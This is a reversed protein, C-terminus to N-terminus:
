NSQNRPLTIDYSNDILDQIYKKFEPDRRTSFYQFVSRIEHGERETIGWQEPYDDFAHNGAADEVKEATITTSAFISAFASNKAKNIASQFLNEWEKSQKFDSM